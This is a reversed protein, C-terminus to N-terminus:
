GRKETRRKATASRKAKPPVTAPKGGLHEIQERIHDLRAKPAGIAVLGALERKTSELQAARIEKPIDMTM